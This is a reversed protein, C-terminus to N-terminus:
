HSVLRMALYRLTHGIKHYAAAQGMANIHLLAGVYRKATSAAVNPDAAQSAAFDAQSIIEAHCDTMAEYYFLTAPRVRAHGRGSFTVRALCPSTLKM